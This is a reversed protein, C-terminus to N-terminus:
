TARRVLTGRNQKRGGRGHGHAAAMADLAAAPSSGQHHHRNTFASVRGQEKHPQQMVVFPVPSQGEHCRPERNETVPRSPWAPKSAVQPDCGRPAPPRMAGPKRGGHALHAKPAENPTSCM